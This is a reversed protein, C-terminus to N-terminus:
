FHTYVIIDSVCWDRSADGVNFKALVESKVFNLKEILDKMYTSSSGMGALPDPAKSLDLKHLKSIISSLERRIAILLPDVIKEYATRVEQAFLVTLM